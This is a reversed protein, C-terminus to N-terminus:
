SPLRLIKLIDDFSKCDCRTARFSVGLGYALCRTVAHDSHHCTNEGSMLLVCLDVVRVNVRAINSPRLLQEFHQKEQLRIVTRIDTLNRKMTSNSHFARRSANKIDTLSRLSRTGRTDEGVGAPYRYASHVPQGDASPYVTYTGEKRNSSTYSNNAEARSPDNDKDRHLQKYRIM